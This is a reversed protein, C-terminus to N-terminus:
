TKLTRLFARFDELSNNVRSHQRYGLDPLLPVQPSPPCVFQTQLSERSENSCAPCTIGDPIASHSVFGMTHTARQHLSEQGILQIELPREPCHLVQKAELTNELGEVTQAHWLAAEM